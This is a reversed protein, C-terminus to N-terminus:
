TSVKPLLGASKLADHTKFFGWGLHDCMQGWTWGDPIGEPFAAAVHKADAETRLSRLRSAVEQEWPTLIERTVLRLIEECEAMTMTNIPKM